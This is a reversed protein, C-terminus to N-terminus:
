HYTNNFVYRFVCSQVCLVHKEVIDERLHDAFVSFTCYGDFVFVRTSNHRLAIGSAIKFGEDSACFINQILTRMPIRSPHNFVNEANKEVGFTKVSITHASDQLSISLTLVTM